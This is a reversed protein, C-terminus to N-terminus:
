DLLGHRAAYKVAEISNDVNLKELIRQRHTNVTHVSIALQESIEKSFLGESVLKLVAKERQSLKPSDHQGSFEDLQYTEGTTFNMLRSQVRELPEQNPSIDLVSLSLWVDGKEDFELVQYQEIVRVCNGDLVLRYENIMKTSALESLNRTKSFHAMVAQGNAELQIIDDPHIHRDFYHTNEEEIARMDYGFLDTFNCSTFIHKDLHQDFVSIGSNTVMALRSLLEIHRQAISYDRGTDSPLPNNIATFDKKDPNM